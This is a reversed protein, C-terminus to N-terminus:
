YSGLILPTGIYIKGDVYCGQVNAKKNKYKVSQEFYSTYGVFCCASDEILSINMQKIVDLFTQRSGDFVFTVGQINNVQKCINKYDCYNCVLIQGNGNEVYTVDDFRDVCKTSTFVQVKINEYTSFDFDKKFLSACFLCCCLLFFVVFKKM